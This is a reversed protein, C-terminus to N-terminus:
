EDAEKIGTFELVDKVFMTALDKILEKNEEAQYDLNDVKIDDNKKSVLAILQEKQDELNVMYIYNKEDYLISDIVVYKKNDELTLLQGQELYKM